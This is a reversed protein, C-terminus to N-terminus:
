ERGISVSRRGCVPDFCTQPGNARTRINHRPVYNPVYVFFLDEACAERPMRCAMKLICLEDIAQLIQDLRDAVIGPGTVAVVGPRANRDTGAHVARHAANGSQRKAFVDREDGAGDGRSVAQAVSRVNSHTNGRSKIAPSTASHGVAQLGPHRGFGDTKWMNHFTRLRYQM